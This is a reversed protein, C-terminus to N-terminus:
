SMNSCVVYGRKNTGGNTSTLVYTDKAGAGATVVPVEGEFWVTSTPWALTYSAGQSVEIQLKGLTGSPPWNTVNFTTVSAGLTLAIIWGKSMDVNLTSTSTTIYQVQAALMFPIAAFISAQWSSGDSTIGVSMGKVGIYLPLNAGDINDSGNPTIVIQNASTDTKKFTFGTGEQVASAAPLNVTINGGACNYEYANGASGAGITQPSLSISTWPQYLREYGTVTPSQVTAKPIGNFPWPSIVVDNTDTLKETYDYTSGLFVPTPIRGSSDLTIPNANTTTGTQESYTDLLNTTNSQYYYLRYGALPIGNSNFFQEGVKRYLVTSSM